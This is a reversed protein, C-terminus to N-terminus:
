QPSNSADAAQVENKNRFDKWLQASPHSPNSDYFIDLRTLMEMFDDTSIFESLIPLKEQLDELEQLDDLEQVGSVEQLRDLDHIGDVEQPDNDDCTSTMNVPYHNGPHTHTEIKNM